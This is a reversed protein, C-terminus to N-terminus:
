TNSNAILWDLCHALVSRADSMGSFTHDANQVVAHSLSAHTMLRKWDVDRAAFEIFEKATYDNESLLVLTRGPFRKLGLAMRAPFPESQGATIEPRAASGAGTHPSPMHWAKTVTRALGSLAQLGIGGRLLKAWFAPEVLRKLYYHKVHTIALSQETRVWPNALILGHVRPDPSEHLYLLAASAGDCLGWLVVGSLQPQAAMTATIASRIDDAQAEFSRLTGTSDGMGRCDFRLAAYGAQALGRALIVFQRHSGVRYQPGGVVIVVAVSAPMVPVALVGVLSDTGCDFRLAEETWATAPSM